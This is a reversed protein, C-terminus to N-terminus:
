RNNIAKHLHYQLQYDLYESKLRATLEELGKDNVWFLKRMKRAIGDSCTIYRQTVLFDSPSLWKSVLHNSEVSSRNFSEFVDGASHLKLGNVTLTCIRQNAMDADGGKSGAM